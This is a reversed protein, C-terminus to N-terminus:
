QVVITVTNSSVGAVSLTVPVANGAPVGAPVQANVQYLGAFGPALGSFTVAAAINGITVQPVAVTTLAPTPGPNGEVIRSTLAGLGTCYILIFAGAQTPTGASVLQYDSGRLIAGAGTGSSNAAFIGPAAASVTATQRVVAVGDVEINVTGATLEYPVQANIQGPSAYFLPAAIGNFYVNVSGLSPPLYSTSASMTSGALGSGFISIISGPAFASQYSAGNVVGNISAGSSGTTSPGTTTGPGSTTGSGSTGGSGTAGSGNALSVTQPVVIM